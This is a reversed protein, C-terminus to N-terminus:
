RRYSSGAEFDNVRPFTKSVPEKVGIEEVEATLNEYIMKENETLGVANNKNYLYELIKM